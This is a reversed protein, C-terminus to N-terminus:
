ASTPVPHCPLAVSWVPKRNRLNVLDRSGLPVISGPKCTWTESADGITVTVPYSLRHTAAVLERLWARAQSETPAAYPFVAFGLQSQGWKTALAFSDDIYRSEPAYTVDSVFGPETFDSVGLGAATGHGLMVLPDLSLPTRDISITLTPDTM